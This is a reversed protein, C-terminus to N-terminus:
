GPEVLELEPYTARFGAPDRTLLGRFRLAFAGILVDAIPRKAGEGARRRRVHRAWGAHATLTDAHRWDTAFDVGVAALFEDELERSGEFAPALEVYTLPCVALGDGRRDDLLRASARGFEPDDDLVDILLCTDVVWPKAAV